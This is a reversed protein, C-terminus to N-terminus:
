GAKLDTNLFYSFSLRAKFADNKERFGSLSSSVSFKASTWSTISLQRKMLWDFFNFLQLLSQSQSIKAHKILSLYVASAM